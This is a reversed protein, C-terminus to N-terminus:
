SLANVSIKYNKNTTFIYIKLEHSYMKPPFKGGDVAFQSKDHGFVLVCVPRKQICHSVCFISLVPLNIKLAPLINQFGLVLWLGL